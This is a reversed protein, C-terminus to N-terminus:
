SSAAAAESSKIQWHVIKCTLIVLHKLDRDVDALFELVGIKTYRWQAREMRALVTKSSDRLEWRKGFIAVKWTYTDALYTFVWGDNFIGRKNALSVLQEGRIVASTRFLGNFKGTLVTHKDSDGSEHLAFTRRHSEIEYDPKADSEAAPLEPLEGSYLVAGNGFTSDRFYTYTEVM